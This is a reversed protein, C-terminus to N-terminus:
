VVGRELAILGRAHLKQLIGVQDISLTFVPHFDGIAVKLRKGGDSVLPATIRELFAEEGIGGYAKGDKEIVLYQIAPGDILNWLEVAPKGNGTRQEQCHRVLVACDAQWQQRRVDRNFEVEPHRRLWALVDRATDHWVDLRAVEAIGRTATDPSLSRSAPWQRFVLQARKQSDTEYPAVDVLLRGVTAREALLQGPQIIHLLGAARDLKLTLHPTSLEDRGLRRHRFGAVVMWGAVFLGACAAVLWGITPWFAADPSSPSLDHHAPLDFLSFFAMGLCGLMAVTAARAAVDAMNDSKIRDTGFRAYFMLAAAVVLWFVTM